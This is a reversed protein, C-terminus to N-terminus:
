LDKILNEFDEGGKIYIKMIKFPQLFVFLLYEKVERSMEEGKEPCALFYIFSVLLAGVSGILGIGFFTLTTWTALIIIPSFLITLIIRLIKM